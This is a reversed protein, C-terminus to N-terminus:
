GLGICETCINIAKTLVDATGGALFGYVLLVVGIALIFGRVASVMRDGSRTDPATKSETRNPLKKLLEIERAMSKKAHCAAYVAWIFPVALCPLLLRIAAIMSPTIETQHFHSPDVAYFLFLISCIVLLAIGVTARLRRANQETEVSARVELDSNIDKQGHLRHLVMTQPVTRGPKKKGSPFLLDLLFGGIVLALCLYVPISIPAFHEAVSTPSFPSDGSRYIQICAAMLCIGALISAAGTVSGYIMHIRRNTETTM